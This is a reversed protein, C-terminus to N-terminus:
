LTRINIIEIPLSLSQWIQDATLVIANHEIALALCARDGLSLGLARSQERLLGATIAQTESFPVIDIGLTRLQQGILQPSQHNSDLLKAVLESLNVASLRCTQALLAATADGGPERLIWALLASTDLVYTPM